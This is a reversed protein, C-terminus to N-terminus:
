VRIFRVIVTCIERSQPLVGLGVLGSKSAGQISKRTYIQGDLTRTYYNRDNFQNNSPSYRSGFSMAVSDAAEGVRLTSSALSGEQVCLAGFLMKTVM